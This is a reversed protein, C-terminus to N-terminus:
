LRNHPNFLPNETNEPEKKLDDQATILKPPAIFSSNYYPQDHVASGKSAAQQTLQDKKMIQEINKIEKEIEKITTTKDQRFFSSIGSSFHKNWLNSLQNVEGDNESKIYKEFFSKREALDSISYADKCFLDYLQTKTVHDILKLAEEPFSNNKLLSYLFPLTPITLPSGDELFLKLSGNDAVAGATLLTIVIEVHSISAALFLPTEGKARESASQIGGITLFHPKLPSFKNVDAGNKICKVVLALNGHECARSLLQQLKTSDDNTEYKQSAM